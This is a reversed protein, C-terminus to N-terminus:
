TPFHGQDFKVSWCGEGFKPFLTVAYKDTWKLTGFYRNFAFEDPADTVVLVKELVGSSRSRLQIYIRVEEIDHEVFVEAVLRRGNNWWARKRWSWQNVFNLGLVAERAQEYPKLDWGYVETVIEIGRFLWNLAQRNKEYAGLEFYALPNGKIQLELSGLMDLVEQKEPQPVIFVSIKWAKGSERPPTFHQEFLSLLSRTENIFRHRVWKDKEEPAYLGFERIM